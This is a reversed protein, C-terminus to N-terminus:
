AQVPDHKLGRIIIKARISAGSGLKFIGMTSNGNKGDIEAANFSVKGAVRKEVMVSLTVDADALSDVLVDYSVNWVPNRPDVGPIPDVPEVVTFTERTADQGINVRCSSAKTSSPLNFASDILVSVMCKGTVDDSFVMLSSQLLVEAQGAIQEDVNKEMRIWRSRQALLDQALVSFEGVLDDSVPDSDLVKVVLEQEQDNLIFPTTTNWEPTLSKKVIPTEAKRLGFKLRCYLDPTLKVFGAKKEKQFGRGRIIGVNLVGAPPYYCDFYDVADTLKFMFRNPLVFMSAVVDRLVKDIVREVPGIDALAAAGKFDLDVTPHNVFSM